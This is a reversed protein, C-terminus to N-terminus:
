LLNNINRSNEEEKEIFALIIGRNKCSAKWSVESKTQITKDEMM